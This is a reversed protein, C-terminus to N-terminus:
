KGRNAKIKEFIEDIMKDSEDDDEEIRKIRLYERMKKTKEEENMKKEQFQNNIRFFKKINKIIKSFFNEKKYEIIAVNSDEKKIETQNNKFINDPNYKERLEKEQIRENETYIEILEQKKKEDECWYNLNLVALIALTKKQLNQKDLSIDIKIDPEYEKQKKDKFLERLKYPVKEVYKNEMMSLIKDVEAYAIAIERRNEM